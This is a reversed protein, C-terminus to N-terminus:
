REHGDREGENADTAEVVRAPILAEIREVIAEGADSGALGKAAARMAPLKGRHILEDLTWWLRDGDLDHDAIVVAAGARAFV